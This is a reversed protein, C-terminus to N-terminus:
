GGDLGRRQEAIAPPAERRVEQAIRAAHADLDQKKHKLVAEALRAIAKWKEETSLMAEMLNEATLEGTITETAARQLHWKKCHFFTHNADDIDADEYICSPADTKGIRFLYKRFYGHGTLLQTVYYDVDGHNREVWRTVNPLVKSTWKGRTESDWKRQWQQLTQRRLETPTATLNGDRKAEWLKRRELALLDIPIIGSVVLVAAESVTRYASAVRLAATRQVALLTKKKSKARLAEGWIESGYLLISNTTAMLLKRKSQRPGGVNAMLKALMGTVKAAKTAAYQIQAWFSLRSDIRVGLYKVVTSTTLTIETTQFEIELPIHQKTLLIVETKEAALRLGHNELWSLVRMMTQNLKRRAEETTKATIVAALDDAYGILYTNEPMEIRLIGDYTINWLDPGLISGQAAGSTIQKERQGDCTDYILTRDSLYNQLIRLLYGPVRFNTSLAKRVDAWRLSNFANRIDFTALLVIRKKYHSGSQAVEVSTVVDQIADITSRKNRFGYQKHSLGGASEVASNLRMKILKEFLKGASDLMCLPRYASPQTPDGKGKSILTLKQTKWRAPFCGEKLCNNYMKLLISPREAAIVKLVEAPVGDPGPAKNSKLSKAAAKLEDETFLPVTECDATEQNSLQISHTPFLSDVIRTVDESEMDPIPSRAGLKKLVIKYGLGWPDNNLDSRLEDWKAKKSVTIARKLNKKAEKFDAAETLAPSHKRARTLKRRRKICIRRLEAIEATWWYAARKRTNNTVKPMSANCGQIIKGMINNVVATADVLYRDHTTDISTLLSDPRLKAANWKRTSSGHTAQHTAGNSDIRYTIYQHDSGNFDELVQWERLQRFISESVLTIDPTTNDCGPRRFTTATGCNAVVLRLRAAMNLVRRGRSCTNPMGWEIAKANFDGAIILPGSIESAKDEINALKNEFAEISDSPTLYCSVLTCHRTQVYSFCNGVGSSFVTLTSSRPLWIAATGSEDEFWNVRHAQRYQESIIVVDAEKELM